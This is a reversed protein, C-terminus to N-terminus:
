YCAQLETDYELTDVEGGVKGMNLTLQAEFPNLGIEWLESIGTDVHTFSVFIRNEADIAVGYAALSATVGLNQTGILQSNATLPDVWYFDTLTPDNENEKPATNVLLLRQEIPHWVMSGFRYNFGLSGVIKSERTEPNIRFLQDTTRDVLYLWEAKSNLPYVLVFIMAVVIVIRM